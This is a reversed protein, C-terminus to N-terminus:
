YAILGFITTDWNNNASNWTIGNDFSMLYEGATATALLVGNSSVTVANLITSVGSNRTVWNIGDDSTLITGQNGVVVFTGSATQTIANLMVSVGSTQSNWTTGNDTSLFISGNNGTILWKSGKIYSALLTKSLPSKASWTVGNDTSITNFGSNGVALFTGNTNASVNNLTKVGGSTTSTWNIGNTSHAIQGKSGVIVYNSGNNAVSNWDTTPEPSTQNTWEKLDSSTMITAKEGVMIGLSESNNWIVGTLKNPNGAIIQGYTWSSLETNPSNLAISASGIAIIKDGASIVGYLNNELDNNQSGTTVNTWTKGDASIKYTYGVNGVAVFSGNPLTTISNLIKYDQTNFETTVTAATNGTAPITITYGYFNGVGILTGLNNQTFSTITTQYPDYNLSAFTAWTAGNDRTYTVYGSGTGIQNGGIIFSENGLAYVSSAQCTQGSNCFNSDGSPILGNNTWAIGDTSTLYETGANSDYYNVAIVMMNGSPSIAIAQLYRDTGSNATLWTEGNDKSTVIRGDSGVAVIQGNLPSVAVSNLMGFSNYQTTWNIGDTSLSIDGHNGIAIYKGNKTYAIANKSWKPYLTETYNYSNIDNSGALSGVQGHRGALYFSTGLKATTAYNLTISEATATQNGNYMYTTNLKVNGNTNPTANTYTLVFTCSMKSPLVNTVTNSNLTCPQEGGSTISFYENPNFTFVFNSEPTDGLNTLTIIKSESAEINNSTFDFNTNSTISVGSEANKGIYTYNSITPVAVGGNSTVVIEGNGSTGIGTNLLLEIYCTSNNSSTLQPKLVINTCTNKSMTVSSPIKFDLNSLDSDGINTYTIIQSEYNGINSNANLTFLTPQTQLIGQGKKALGITHKETGNNIINGNYATQGYFSYNDEGTNPINLLFTVVNNTALNTKGTGSNNSLVTFNLLNGNSDTLNITNFNDGANSRVVATIAIKITGDNTNTSIIKDYLFTIGNAGTEINTPLDTLGINATLELTTTNTFLSKFSDLLSVTINNTNEEAGSTATVKFSGPHSGAAIEVPFTCSQGSEINLCPQDAGNQVTIIAGTLNTAEPIAYFLNQANTESTNTITLYATVPITAPYQTPATISLSLTGPEPSPTVTPNPSPTITPNPNVNTNCNGGASCGIMTTSFIISSILLAIKKSFVRM